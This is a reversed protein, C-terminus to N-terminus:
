WPKVSVREVGVAQSDPYIDPKCTAVRVAQVEPRRVLAGVIADCLSEQLEHHRVGVERAVLERIFDYDVTQAIDDEVAPAQDLPICLDIDFWMRQAAQREHPHVGIRVAVEHQRLSLARCETALRPDLAGFALLISNM